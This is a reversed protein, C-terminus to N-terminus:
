GDEGDVQDVVVHGVYHQRFGPVEDDIKTRKVVHEHHHYDDEARVADVNQGADVAQLGALAHHDGDWQEDEVYDFQGSRHGFRVGDAERQEHWEEGRWERQKVVIPIRGLHEHAIGVAVKGADNEGGDAYEAVEGLGHHQEKYRLNKVEDEGYRLEKMQHGAWPM